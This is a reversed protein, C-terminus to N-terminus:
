ERCSTPLLHQKHGPRINIKTNINFRVKPSKDSGDQKVDSVKLDLRKPPHVNKYLYGRCTFSVTTLSIESKSSVM